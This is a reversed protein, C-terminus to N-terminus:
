STKRSSETTKGYGLANVVDEILVGKPNVETFDIVTEWNEETAPVIKFIPKSKKLVVFTQGANVQKTYAEVNERFEKLGIIKDM